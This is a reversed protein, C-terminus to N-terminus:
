IESSGINLHNVALEFGLRMDKGSASYPRTLPMVGGIFIASGSSGVPFTGLGPYSKQALAWGATGPLLFGAATLGLGGKMLSRRSMSLRSACVRLQRQVIDSAHM